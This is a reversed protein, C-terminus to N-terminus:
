YPYLIWDMEFSSIRNEVKNSFDYALPLSKVLHTKVTPLVSKGLKVLCYNLSILIIRAKVIYNFKNDLIKTYFPIINNEFTLILSKRSNFIKQNSFGHDTVIFSDLQMSCFITQDKLEQLIEINNEHKKVMLDFYISGVINSLLTLYEYQYKTREYEEFYKQQFLRILAISKVSDQVSMPLKISDILKQLHDRKPLKKYVQQTDIRANEYIDIITDRNVKENWVSRDIEIEQFIKNM